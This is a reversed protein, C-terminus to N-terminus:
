VINMEIFTVTSSTLKKHHGLIRIHLTFFSHMLLMHIVQNIRIKKGTLVHSNIPHSVAKQAIIHYSAKLSVLKLNTIEM